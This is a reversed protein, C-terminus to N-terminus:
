GGKLPPMVALEDNEALRRTGREGLPVVAGNLAVLFRDGAPLGLQAMVDAPTTGVGVDLAASLGTAGQPLYKALLGATRFRIKM